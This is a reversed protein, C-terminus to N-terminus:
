DYRGGIIYNRKWVNILSKEVFPLYKPKIGKRSVVDIKQELLDELEHAMRIYQFGDIRSSFDVLIDIDSTQQQDGRAYSGFVGLESLSYRKELEPKKQRLKDLIVDLSYVPTLYM